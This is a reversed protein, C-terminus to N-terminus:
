GVIIVVPPVFASVTVTGTVEESFDGINDQVRFYITHTGVSLTTTEFQAQTGITGDRDSRWRYAVIQGDVDTGYGSFRVADGETAESPTISSIYAVPADNVLPLIYQCGPVLSVVGLLFFSFVRLVRKM